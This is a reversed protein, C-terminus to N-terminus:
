QIRTVLHKDGYSDDVRGSTPWIKSEPRIFGIPYAATERSYPKDWNSSLCIEQIHPANKLPNNKKDWIGQEIKAIEERISILADCLRDLEAKSESETPEIMLAGHVPWSVTPSHFGYDQLRKAIDIAEVNATAKFDANIIFEHAVYGEDGLYNVHYHSELRKRMYNASLIAIQTAKKLGKSGMMKIYGWSIPLISSSGFPAASCSGFSQGRNVGDIDIIPHSPLFPALHKKVGIPGMGPGGGGHPICFTKHLNLHSVDAGYDGPRCLGVQANLNAGDLYIQGGYHHIMECIEVIKSDFVGFTSPYTIMACALKEKHKQALDSLMKMDIEGSKLVNVKYIDMGAMAASAPNTGHASTPVLCVKRNNEGISKLYQMISRLGAYEGQAGSNPQLSIKDYGTIECLYRCLEDFLVHYGKVQDRPVFPHIANFEPWSCPIMETTANLKM